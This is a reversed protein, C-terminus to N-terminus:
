WAFIEFSQDFWIYLSHSYFVSDISWQAIPEVIM